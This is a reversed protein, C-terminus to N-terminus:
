ESVPKLPQLLVRIWTRTYGGLRELAYRPKQRGEGKINREMSRVVTTCIFDVIIRRM